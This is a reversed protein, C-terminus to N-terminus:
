ALGAQHGSGSHVGRPCGDPSAAMKSACPSASLCTTGETGQLLVRLWPRGRATDTPAGSSRWVALGVHHALRAKRESRRWGLALSLATPHLIGAVIQVGLPIGDTGLGLPVATAPMEMVNFIATHAADLVRLLPEVHFRGGLRGSCVGGGRKPL